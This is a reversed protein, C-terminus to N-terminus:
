KLAEVTVDTPSVRTLIDRVNKDIRGSFRLISITGAGDVVSLPLKSDSSVVLHQSPSQYSIFGDAGVSAIYARRVSSVTVQQGEPTFLNSPGERSLILFVDDPKSGSIKLHHSVGLPSAPNISLPEAFSGVILAEFDFLQNGSQNTLIVAPFFTGIQDVSDYDFIDNYFANGAIPATSTGISFSTKGVTITPNNWGQVTVPLDMASLLHLLDPVKIFDPNTTFDALGDNRTGFSVGQWVYLSLQRQSDPFRVYWTIRGAIQVPPETIEVGKSELTKRLSSLEMWVSLQECALRQKGVAFSKQNQDCPTIPVRTTGVVQAMGSTLNSVGLTALVACLLTNRLINPMTYVGNMGASVAHPAGLDTLAKSIADSESLGLTQYKWAKHYVHSELELRITRKHEGWLGWTALRLYRELDPHKM